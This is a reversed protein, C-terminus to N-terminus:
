AYKPPAPGDDVRITIRQGDYEHLTALLDAGGIRIRDLEWDTYPSYGEHGEEIALQGQLSHTGVLVCVAPNGYGFVEGIADTISQGDITPSTSPWEPGCEVIGELQLVRM